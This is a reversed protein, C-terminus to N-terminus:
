LSLEWNQGVLDKGFSHHKEEEVLRFGAAQYIRRASVLVDNTWLTLTKYGRQRSFRICEDVLRRGIGLGRAAPEVFLLRLKAVEHSQRVVFVSGVIEGEREAIWANEYKPDFNKLFNGLIESILAEYGEDWGYESNYLVMQRHIIWGMDGPRHSRLIYPVAADPAKGLLREITEMSNTLKRRQEPRLAELMGAVQEVSGRDLPGFAARGAETITLVSQRGDQPSPARSLLGQHEFRKLIRSLYGPDLGLDKVLESATVGDRNALEYLIRAETLSFASKLLKSELLGIQRTYFRTFRRVTAIQSDLTASDPKM